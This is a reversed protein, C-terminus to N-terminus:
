QEMEEKKTELRRSLQVLLERSRASDFGSGRQRQSLSDVVGRGSKEDMRVNGAIQGAEMSLLQVLRDYGTPYRRKKEYAAQSYRELFRSGLYLGCDMRHQEKVLVDRKGDEQRMWTGTEGEAWLMLPGGFRYVTGAELERLQEELFLASYDSYFWYLTDRFAAENEEQCAMGYLEVALECSVCVLETKKYTRWMPVYQLQSFLICYFRGSKHFLHGCTEYDAFRRGGPQQGLALAACSRWFASFADQRGALEGLIGNLREEVLGCREELEKEPQEM